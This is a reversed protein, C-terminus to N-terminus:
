FFPNKQNIEPVRSYDESSKVIVWKILPLDRKITNILIDFLILVSSINVKKEDPNQSLNGKFGM